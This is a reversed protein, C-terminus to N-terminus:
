KVDYLEGGFKFNGEKKSEFFTEKKSKKESQRKHFGANPTVDIPLPSFFVQLPVKSGVRGGGRGGGGGGGEVSALAFLRVWQFHLSVGAFFGLTSQLKRM